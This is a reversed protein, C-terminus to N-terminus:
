MCHVFRLYRRKARETWYGDSCSAEAVGTSTQAGIFWGSRVILGCHGDWMIVDGAEVLQAPFWHGSTEMTETNRYNVVQPSPFGAAIAERASNIVQYIFHSCDIGKPTNGGFLYPTGLWGRAATLMAARLRGVYERHSVTFDPNVM